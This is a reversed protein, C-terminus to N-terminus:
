ALTKPPPTDPAAPDNSSQALVKVVISGLDRRLFSFTAPAAPRALLVNAPQFSSQLPQCVNVTLEPRDPGSVAIVGVTLSFNGVLIVAAITSSLARVEFKTFLRKVPDNCRYFAGRTDLETLDVAGVVV